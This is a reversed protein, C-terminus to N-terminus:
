ALERETGGKWVSVTWWFQVGNWFRGHDTPSGHVAVHQSANEEERAVGKLSAKVEIDLTGDQSSEKWVSELVQAM